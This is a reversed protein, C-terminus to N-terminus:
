SIPSLKDIGQHDKRGSIATEKINDQQVLVMDIEAVEIRNGRIKIQSDKRGRHELLGGPHIEGMDGTKYIRMEPDDPDTLFVQNTLEPNNWYGMSIYKSRVSIEGTGDKRLPKGADDLLVVGLDAEPYGLPVTAKEVVTSKDIFYNRALGTETSSFGCHMVCEPSFYKKYADVDRKYSAEGGLKILRVTEFNEAGTLTSTFQRFITAM